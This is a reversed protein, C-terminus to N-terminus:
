RRPLPQRASHRRVVPQLDRRLLIRRRSRRRGGAAGIPLGDEDGLLVRYAPANKAESPEAAVFTIEEDIGLARFRGEFGSETRTFLGINAM